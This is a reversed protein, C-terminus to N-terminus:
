SSRSLPGLLVPIGILMAAELGYLRTMQALSVGRSRLIGIEDRRRGSLVSAAMLLYYIVITLLITAMLFM